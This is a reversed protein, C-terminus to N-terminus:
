LAGLPIRPNPRATAFTMSVVGGEDAGIGAADGGGVAAALAGDGDAGSVRWIPHLEFKFTPVGRVTITTGWVRARDVCVMAPVRVGACVSTDMPSHMPDLSACELQAFLLMAPHAVMVRGTLPDHQAAPRGTNWPFYLRVIASGNRTIFPSDRAYVCTVGFWLLADYRPFGRLLADTGRHLAAEVSSEDATFQTGDVPCPEALREAKELGDDVVGNADVTRVRVFAESPMRAYFAFRGGSARMCESEERPLRYRARDVLLYARRKPDAEIRGQPAGDDEEEEEKEEMADADRVRAIRRLGLLRVRLAHVFAAWPVDCASAGHGVPREGLPLPDRRRKRGAAGAAAAADASEDADAADAAASLGAMAASIASNVSAAAEAAGAMWGVRFTTRVRHSRPLQTLRALRAAAVREAGDTRDGRALDAVRPGPDIRDNVLAIADLEEDEPGAVGYLARAARDDAIDCGCVRALASM